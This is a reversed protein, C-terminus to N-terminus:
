PLSARPWNFVRGYPVGNTGLLFGTKNGGSFLSIEAQFLSIQPPFLLRTIEVSFLLM